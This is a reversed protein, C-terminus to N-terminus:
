EKAKISLLEELAEKIPYFRLDKLQYTGDKRQGRGTIRLHGGQELQMLDERIAETTLEGAFRNLAERYTFGEIRNEYMWRALRIITRGREVTPARTVLGLMRTMPVELNDLLDMAMGFHGPGIVLSRDLMAAMIISLKLGTTYKRGFWPQMYDPGIPNYNMYESVYQEDAEESWAMKGRLKCLELLEAVLHDQLKKLQTTMVPHPIRRSNRDQYVFLIRPLFGGTMATSPAVDTFWDPTTGGLLNVCPREVVYTGATKTDTGFPDGDYFKILDEFFGSRYADRNLCAGLEDAHVTVPASGLEAEVEHLRQIFAEKTLRKLYLMFPPHKGQFKEELRQLLRQGIRIASSKRCLASGAVLVVYLNPFLAGDGWPLWVRRGLVSALVSIGTWLHFIKPSEALEQAYNLYGELWNAYPRESV